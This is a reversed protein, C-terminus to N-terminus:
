FSGIVRLAWDQFGPTTIPDPKGKALWNKVFEIHKHPAGGSRRFGPCDCTWTNGRRSVTYVAEPEKSGSFKAVEYSADVGGRPHIDRVLYTLFADAEVLQTILSKALSCSVRGAM